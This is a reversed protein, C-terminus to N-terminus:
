VGWALFVFMALAGVTAGGLWIKIIEGHTWVAPRNFFKVNFRM